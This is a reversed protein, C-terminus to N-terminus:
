TAAVIRVTAPGGSAVYCEVRDITDATWTTEWTDIETAYNAENFTGGVSDTMNRSDDTGLVFPVNAALKVVFATELNSTAITGGENCMLQIECAVDTVIWMFDFDGTPSDSDAWLTTLTTDAIEITKDIVEGTSATITQATERSGGSYTRSGVKVDFRQYINVTAM